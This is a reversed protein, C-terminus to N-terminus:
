KPRQPIRPPLNTCSVRILHMQAKQPRASSFGSARPRYLRARRRAGCHPRSPLRPHRSGRITPPRVTQTKRPAGWSSARPMSPCLQRATLSSPTAWRASPMAPTSSAQPLFDVAGTLALQTSTAAVAIDAAAERDLYRIPLSADAEIIAAREFLGVALRDGVWALSRPQFDEPFAVDRVLSTPAAECGARADPPSCGPVRRLSAAILGRAGQVSTLSNAAGLECVSGRVLVGVVEGESNLTPGGSDGPCASAGAGAETLLLNGGEGYQRPGFPAVERLTLVGETRRGPEPLGYGIVTLESGPDPDAGALEFPVVGLHDRAILVALDLGGLDPGIEGEGGAVLVSEVSVSRTPRDSNRGVHVAITALDVLDGDEEVCHRATLVAYPGIVGGSCGQVGDCM